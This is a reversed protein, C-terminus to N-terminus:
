QGVEKARDRWRIASALMMAAFERGFQWAMPSENAERIYRKARAFDEEAWQRMAHATVNM